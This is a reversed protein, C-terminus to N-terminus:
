SSGTWVRVGTLLVERPQFDALNGHNLLQADWLGYPQTHAPPNSSFVSLFAWAQKPFVGRNQCMHLIEHIGCPRFGQGQGARGSRGEAEGHRAACEPAAAPAAGPALM